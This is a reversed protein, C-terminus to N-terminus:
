MHLDSADLGALFNPANPTDSPAEPVFRMRGPNCNPEFMLVYRCGSYNEM